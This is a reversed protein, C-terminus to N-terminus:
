SDNGRSANLPAIFPSGQSKVLDIRLVICVWLSIDVVHSSFTNNPLFM